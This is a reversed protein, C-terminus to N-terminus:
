RSGFDQTFTGGPQGKCGTSGKPTGFASGVGIERFRPSLINGRHLTTNTGSAMWADVVQRPTPKGVKCLINEAFARCAPCYGHDTLRRRLDHGEPTGHNVPDFYGRTVMDQSYDRATAALQSNVVLAPLGQVGPTTPNTDHGARKENTLCVIAAQNQSTAQFFRVAYQGPSEGARRLPKEFPTDAGACTAAQATGSQVLGALSAAAILVALAPVRVRFTVGLM